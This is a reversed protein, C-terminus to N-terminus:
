REVLLGLTVKTKRRLASLKGAVFRGLSHTARTEGFQGRKFAQFFRPRNQTLHCLRSLNDGALCPRAKLTEMSM